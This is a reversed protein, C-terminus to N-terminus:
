REPTPAVKRMIDAIWAPAYRLDKLLQKKDAGALRRRLSSVILEDMHRQGIWRLAQIVTGSIRGATAMQRTTTKKLLIQRKGLQVKRTRGGAM